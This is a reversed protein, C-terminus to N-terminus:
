SCPSLLSSGKQNGTFFTTSNQIIWWYQFAGQSSGSICSKCALVLSRLHLHLNLVYQVYAKLRFLCFFIHRRREIVAADRVFSTGKSGPAAVKFGRYCRKLCSVADGKGGNGGSGDVFKNRLAKRSWVALFSCALTGFWRRRVMTRWLENRDKALLPRLYPIM